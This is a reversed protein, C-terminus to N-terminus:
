FAKSHRIIKFELEIVRVIQIGLFRMMRTRKKVNIHFFNVSNNSKAYFFSRFFTTQTFKQAHTNRIHM